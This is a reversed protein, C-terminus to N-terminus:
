GWTTSGESVGGNGWMTHKEGEGRGLSDRNGRMTHRETGGGLYTVGLGSGRWQTNKKGGM